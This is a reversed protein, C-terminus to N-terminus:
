PHCGAPVTGSGAVSDRIPRAKTPIPPLRRLFCFYSSSSKGYRVSCFGAEAPKKNERQAAIGVEVWGLWRRVYEGLGLACDEANRSQEYGPLAHAFNTVTREAVALGARGFRYGLFYFGREIKGIFAKDPHKEPNVKFYCHAVANRMQWAFALTM